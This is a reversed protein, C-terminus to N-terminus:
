LLYDQLFFWEEERYIVSVLHPYKLRLYAMISQDKGEYRSLDLSFYSDLVSYYLSHWERIKNIPGGFITGSIRNNNKFIPFEGKNVLESEKIEFKNVQLLIISDISKVKECNPWSLYKNMLYEKRFCGIDVWILHDSNTYDLARVLFNSKENWVMYLDVTHYRNEHDIQHFSSYKDKYKQVLWNEKEVIIILHNDKKYKLLVSESEKDTFIITQTTLRMFNSIWSEYDSFSHKSKFKYYATVLTVSM